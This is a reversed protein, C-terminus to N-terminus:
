QLNIKSRIFAEEIPMAKTPTYKIDARQMANTPDTIEEKVKRAYNEETGYKSMAQKKALLLNDEISQAENIM